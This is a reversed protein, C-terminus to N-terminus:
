HRHNSKENRLRDYQRDITKNGRKNEVDIIQYKLSM